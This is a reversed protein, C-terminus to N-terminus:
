EKFVFTLILPINLKLGCKLKKSYRLLYTQKMEFTSSSNYTIVKFFTIVRYIQFKTFHSKHKKSNTVNHNPKQGTYPLM